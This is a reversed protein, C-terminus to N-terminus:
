RTRSWRTPRSRQERYMPHPRARTPCTTSATWTRRRQDALGAPQVVVAQRDHFQVLTKANYRTPTRIHIIKADGRRVALKDAKVEEFSPLM